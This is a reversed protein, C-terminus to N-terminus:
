YGNEELVQEAFAQLVAAHQVIEKYLNQADTPKGWGKAVQIAQAVEGGEESAIVYWTEHSHRQLGWKKNQQIREALIHKNVEKMLPTVEFKPQEVEFSGTEYLIRAMQDVTLGKLPSFDSKWVHAFRAFEEITTGAQKYLEIAKAQVQTLIIKTM